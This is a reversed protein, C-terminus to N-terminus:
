LASYEVDYAIKFFASSDRGRSYINSQLFHSISVGIREAQSSKRFRPTKTNKEVIGIIVVSAPVAQLLNAM